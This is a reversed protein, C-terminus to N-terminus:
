LLYPVKQEELGEAGGGAPVGGVLPHLQAGKVGTVLADHLAEWQVLLQVGFIHLYQKKEEEPQLPVNLDAPVLVIVENIRLPANCSRTYLRVCVCVSQTNLSNAPLQIFLRPETDVM